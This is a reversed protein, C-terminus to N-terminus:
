CSYQSPDGTCHLSAGKAPLTFDEAAEAADGGFSDELGMNDDRGEERVISADPRVNLSDERPKEIRLSARLRKCLSEVERQGTM